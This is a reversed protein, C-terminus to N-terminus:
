GDEKGLAREVATCAESIRGSNVDFCAALDQQAIKRVHYIYAVKVKQEFTLTVSSPSVNRAMVFGKMKRKKVTTLSITPAIRYCPGIWFGKTSVIHSTQRSVVFGKM